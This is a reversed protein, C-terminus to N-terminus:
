SITNANGLLVARPHDSQNLMDFSPNQAWGNNVAADTLLSKPASKFKRDEIIGFSLGAYELNTYYVGINQQVPTSDYPDPLHSTQTKQVMNVWDPFMKYGGTDQQDSQTGATDAAKGAEGWINGHYVDHDDPIAVSPLNALLERYTWGFLYWKRLYDLSAKELHAEKSGMVELGKM